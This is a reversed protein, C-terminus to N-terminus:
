RFPILQTPLERKGVPCGTKGKAYPRDPESASVNAAKMFDAWAADSSREVYGVGAVAVAVITFLCIAVTTCARSDFIPM